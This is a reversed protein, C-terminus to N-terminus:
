EKAIFDSIRFELTTSFKTNLYFNGYIDIRSTAKILSESLNFGVLKSQISLKTILHKGYSVFELGRTPLDSIKFLPEAFGVGFPSFEQLSRYNEMTIDRLEIQISPKEEKVFPYTECLKEFEEKFSPFDDKKISLGGAFAHGGGTLLYKELSAFAKTVNFGEKSRISGKLISPDKEDESFILVPVNYENLLRNAILGILGELVDLKLIIGKKGELEDKNILELSQTTLSKRLENNQIIWDHLSRVYSEDESTLYKVLLNINKDTIVRAIANIKPGIELGFSKENVVESDCLSMLRPYKHENLTKIALRVVDRNYGKLEMMDTVVSIGALTLLYDDYYGLLAASVFLSMYGASGIIDSIHSVTPHIVGVANVRVEPVEHHDIVIVDMGLENAKDIAENASIGNDVCIILNFGKDKIKEVNAVNLGYGDIYRSPVYYAVEYHLKKFTMFMISTSTIGDCDYDGYIIIKEKNEIAKFIRDKVKDMGEIKNPDILHVDEIPKVLDLYEENSLSYYNIIKEKFSTM